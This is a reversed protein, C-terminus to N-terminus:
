LKLIDKIKEFSKRDMKEGREWCRYATYSIGLIKKIDDIKRVNERRWKKLIDKYNKSLVFNYYGDNFYEIPVELANCIKEMNAYYPM